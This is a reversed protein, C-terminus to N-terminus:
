WRGAAESRGPSSFILELNLRKTKEAAHRVAHHWTPIGFNIRKRLGAAARQWKLLQFGVIGVRKM